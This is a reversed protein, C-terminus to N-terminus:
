HDASRRKGGALLQHRIVGVVAPNAAIRLAAERAADESCASDEVIFEIERGLLRGDRALLALDFAHRAVEGTHPRPGSFRLIGGIVIHDDPGIEVCGLEDACDDHALARAGLAALIITLVLIAVRRTM